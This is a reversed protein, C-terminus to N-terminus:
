FSTLIGHQVHPVHEALTGLEWEEGRALLQAFKQVLRRLVAEDM